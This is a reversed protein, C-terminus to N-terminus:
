MLDPGFPGIVPGCGQAQTSIIDVWNESAFAVVYACVYAYAYARSSRVQGNKM